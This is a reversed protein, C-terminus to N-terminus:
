QVDHKDNGKEKKGSFVFLSSASMFALAAVILIFQMMDPIAM